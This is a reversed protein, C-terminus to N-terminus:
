TEAAGPGSKAGLISSGALSPHENERWTKLLSGRFCQPHSLKPELISRGTALFNYSQRCAQLPAPVALQLGAQFSVGVSDARAASRIPSVGFLSFNLLEVTRLVAAGFHRGGVAAVAIGAASLLVSAGLLLWPAWSKRRM